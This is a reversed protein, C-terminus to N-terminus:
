IDHSSSHNVVIITPKLGFMLLTTVCQSGTLLLWNAIVTLQIHCFSDLDVVVKHMEWARFLKRHWFTHFAAVRKKIPMQCSKFSGHRSLLALIKMLVQSYVYQIGFLNKVIIDFKVKKLMKEGLALLLVSGNFRPYHPLNIGLLKLLRWCHFLM